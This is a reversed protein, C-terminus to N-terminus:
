SGAQGAGGSGHPAGPHPPRAQEKGGASAGEMEAVLSAPRMDRWNEEVFALCDARTGNAAVTWGDPVPLTVPWLSHQNESNVLVAFDASDDDFPNTTM